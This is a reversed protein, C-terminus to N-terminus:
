IKNSAVKVSAPETQSANSSFANEGQVVVALQAQETPVSTLDRKSAHQLSGELAAIEAFSVANALLARSNSGLIKLSIEKPLTHSNVGSETAQVLTLDPSSDVKVPLQAMSVVKGVSFDHARPDHSSEPM